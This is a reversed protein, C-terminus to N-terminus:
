ADYFAAFGFDIVRIHGLSDIMTNESKLDRYAIKREHLYQLVLVMEAAYFRAMDEPFRKQRGM